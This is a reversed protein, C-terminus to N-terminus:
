HKPYIIKGVPEFVKAFIDYDPGFYGLVSPFPANITSNGFQIRGYWFCLADAKWLVDKFWRTETRAPVLMIGASMRGSEFEAVFKALWRPIVNGRGYPPNMFVTGRWPHSLGDDEKTYHLVSPITRADDSCPDLIIIGLVTQVRVVIEPPTFWEESKSSSYLAMKDLTM